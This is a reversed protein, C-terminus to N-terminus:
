EKAETGIWFHHLLVMKSPKVKLKKSGAEPKSELLSPHVLCVTPKQGYKKTYYRVARDIKSTLTTQKDNDYWLMGTIM